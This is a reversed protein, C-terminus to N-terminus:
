SSPQMCAINAHHICLAGEVQKVALLIHNATAAIIYVRSFDLLHQELVWRDVFDSHNADGVREPAFTDLRDDRQTRAHCKGLLFQVGETPLVQGAILLRAGDLKDRLQRFISIALDELALQALLVPFVALTANLDPSRKSAKFFFGPRTQTTSHEM